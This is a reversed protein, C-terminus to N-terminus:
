HFEPPENGGIHDLDAYQNHYFLMVAMRSQFTRPILGGVRVWQPGVYSGSCAVGLSFYFFLVM